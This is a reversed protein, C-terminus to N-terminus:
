KLSQEITEVEKLLRILKGSAWLEICRELAKLHNKSKLTKSPKQLLFNPTIMTPKFATDKSLSDQLRENTENNRRYIM